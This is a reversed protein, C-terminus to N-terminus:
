ARPGTWDHCRGCYGAAIDDSNYSVASCRPCTFAMALAGGVTLSEGPALSVAAHGARASLQIEGVTGLPQWEVETWDTVAPCGEGDFGHCLWRPEGPPAAPDPTMKGHVPCEPHPAFWGGAEGNPPPGTM